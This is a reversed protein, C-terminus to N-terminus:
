ANVKGSAVFWPNRRDAKNYRLPLHDEYQLVSGGAEELICQAAAIDWEMTPALRPYIDAEGAALLLLKLSSGVSQMLPQDFRAIYAETHEDRHSRSAVIRLGQDWLSFASVGLPQITENQLRFAGMGSAAWYLDKRVPAGVVGLIPQNGQLLAINVTFEGNKRIFEKTGDLPDVLWTLPLDRRQEYPLDESEESIVPIHPFAAQLHHVIIRHSALDARTLPSDDSKAVAEEPQFDAYIDL